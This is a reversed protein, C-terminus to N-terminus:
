AHPTFSGSVDQQPSTSLALTTTWFIKSTYTFIQSLGLGWDRSQWILIHIHIYICRLFTHTHVHLCTDLAQWIKGRQLLSAAAAATLLAAVATVTPAAVTVVTVASVAVATM